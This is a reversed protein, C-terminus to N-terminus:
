EKDRACDHGGEGPKNVKVGQPGIEVGAFHRPGVACLVGMFVLGLYELGSVKDWFLAANAVGFISWGFVEPLEDFLRKIKDRV